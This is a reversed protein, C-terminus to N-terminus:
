KAGLQACKDAVFEISFGIGIGTNANAELVEQILLMGQAMLNSFGGFDIGMIQVSGRSSIAQCHVHIQKAAAGLAQLDQAGLFRRQTVIGMVSGDSADLIPGGSNGGNVSGDIYFARDNVLGAVTARQVLLHSIGHPFGAFLVETGRTGPKVIKPKLSTRGPPPAGQVSLIAFDHQNTPSSAVLKLPIRTGAETIGVIPKGSTEAGAIVHYNTIVTTPVLFHFGSGSSQGHEIKLTAQAAEDHLSM